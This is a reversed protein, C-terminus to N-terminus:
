RVAYTFTQEVGALGKDDISNIKLIHGGLIQTNVLFIYMKKTNAIEIGDLSVRVNTTEKNEDVAEVLIYNQDGQKFTLNVPLGTVKTTPAVNVEIKQKKYNLTVTQDLSVFKGMFTTDASVFTYGEIVSAYGECKAGVDGKRYVLNGLQLNTDVDVSKFIISGEEVPPTEVAVGNFFKIDLKNIISVEVVKGTSNAIWGNGATKIYIDGVNERIAKTIESEDKKNNAYELTYLKNGIMVSFDPVSYKAVEMAMVQRSLTAPSSLMAVIMSYALIGKLKSM